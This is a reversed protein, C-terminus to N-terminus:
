GPVTTSGTGTAESWTAGDTSDEIQLTASFTGGVIVTVTGTSQPLSVYVIQANANISGSCYATQGCNAGQGFALSAGLILLSLLMSLKRM